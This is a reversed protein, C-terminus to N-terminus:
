KTLRISRVIRQVESEAPQGSLASIGTIVEIRFGRGEARYVESRGRYDGRGPRVVRFDLVEAPLGALMERRRSKLQGGQTGIV